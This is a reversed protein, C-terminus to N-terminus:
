EADKISSIVSEGSKKLHEEKAQGSLVHAIEASVESLQEPYLHASNPENRYSLGIKIPIGEHVLATDRGGVEIWGEQKLKEIFFGIGQNKICEAPYQYDVRRKTEVCKEDYINPEFELIIEGYSLNEPALERVDKDHAGLDLYYDSSFHNRGDLYLKTSVPVVGFVARKEARSCEYQYYDVKCDTFGTAKADSIRGPLRLGDISYVDFQVAALKPSETCACMCFVTLLIILRFM